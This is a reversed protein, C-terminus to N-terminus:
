TPTWYPNEYWILEPEAVRPRDLDVKGDKNM